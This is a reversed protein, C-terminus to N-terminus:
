MDAIDRRCSFFELGYSWHDHFHYQQVGGQLLAGVTLSYDLRACQDSHTLDFLILMASIYRHTATKSIHPRQSIVVLFARSSSTKLSPLIGDRSRMFNILLLTSAKGAMLIPDSVQSSHAACLSAVLRNSANSRKTFSILRLTHRFALLVVKVRLSSRYPVCGFSLCTLDILERFASFSPWVDSVMQSANKQNVRPTWKRRRPYDWALFM